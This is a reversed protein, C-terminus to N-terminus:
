YLRASGNYVLSKAEENTEPCIFTMLDRGFFDEEINVFKVEGVVHRCDCASCEVYM